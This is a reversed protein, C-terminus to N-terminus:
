PWGPCPPPSGNAAAACSAVAFWPLAAAAFLLTLAPSISAMLASSGALVVLELLLSRSGDSLVHGLLALDSLYRSVMEGSGHRAFFSLPLRGLQRYLDRQLGAMVRYAIRVGLVQQAYGLAGRLLVLFALLPLAAELSRAPHGGLLADLPSRLLWPLALGAAAAGLLALAALAYPGRHPGLYPALRRLITM